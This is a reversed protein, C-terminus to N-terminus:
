DSTSSDEMGLYPRARINSLMSPCQSGRILRKTERYFAELRSDLLQTLPPTLVYKDMACRSMLAPSLAM